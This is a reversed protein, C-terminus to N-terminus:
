IFQKSLHKNEMSKSSKMLDAIVNGSLTNTHHIVKQRYNTGMISTYTNFLVFQSTGLKNVNNSKNLEKFLSSSVQYEFSLDSLYISKWKIDYQIQDDISVVKRINGLPIKNLELVLPFNDVLDYKMM